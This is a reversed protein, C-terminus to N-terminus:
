KYISSVSYGIGGIAILKGIVPTNIIIYTMSGNMAATKSFVKMFDRKSKYKNISALCGGLSSGINGAASIAFMNEVIPPAKM